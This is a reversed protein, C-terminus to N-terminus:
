GGPLSRSKGKGLSRIRPERASASASRAASKGQGPPDSLITSSDPQDRLGEFLPLPDMPLQRGDVGEGHDHTEPGELAVQRWVLAKPPRVHRQDPSIVYNAMVGALRIMEVDTPPVPFELKVMVTERRNRKNNGDITSSRFTLWTSRKQTAVTIEVIRLDPGAM